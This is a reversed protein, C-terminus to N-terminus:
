LLKELRLSVKESATALKTGLSNFALAALANDHAPIMTVARQFSLSVVFSYCHENRGPISTEPVPRPRSAPRSVM